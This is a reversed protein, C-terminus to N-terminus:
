FPSITRVRSSLFNFVHIVVYLCASCVNLFILSVLLPLPKLHRHRALLNSALQRVDAVLLQAEYDEWKQRAALDEAAAAALRSRRHTHLSDKLVQIDSFHEPTLSSRWSDDTLGASSFRRESAVSSGQIALYDRAMM